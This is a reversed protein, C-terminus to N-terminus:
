FFFSPLLNKQSKKKKKINYIPLALVHSYTRLSISMPVCLPQCCHTLALTLNDSVGLPDVELIAAGIPGLGELDAQLLPDGCFLDHLM